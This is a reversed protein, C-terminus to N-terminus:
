AEDGVDDNDYGKNTSKKAKKSSTGTAEASDISAEKIAKRKGSSKSPASAPGSAKEAKKMKQVQFEVARHTCEPCMTDIM